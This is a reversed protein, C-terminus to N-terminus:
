KITKIPISQTNNKILRNPYLYITLLGNKFLAEIKDERVPYPLTIKRKFTGTSMEEHLINTYHINFHINGEICLEGKQVYINWDEINQQGPAHIICILGDNTEYMNIFPTNMQFFDRFELWFDDGLFSSAAKKWDKLQQFQEM